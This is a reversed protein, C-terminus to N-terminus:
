TKILWAISRTCHVPFSELRYLSRAGPVFLTVCPLAPIDRMEGRRDGDDARVCRSRYATARVPRPPGASRAASHRRLHWYRPAPPRARQRTRHTRALSGSPGHRAVGGLARMFAHVQGSSAWTFPSRGHVM